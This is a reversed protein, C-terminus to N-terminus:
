APLPAASKAAVFTPTGGAGSRYDMIVPQRLRKEAEACAARAITDFSSGPPSSNLLKIPKSPYAEAWADLGVLALAGASAASALITRRHM